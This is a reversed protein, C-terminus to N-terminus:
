VKEDAVVVESQLYTLRVHNDELQRQLAIVKLEGDKEKALTEYKM